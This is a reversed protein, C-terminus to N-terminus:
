VPRTDVGSGVVRFVLSGSFTKAMGSPLTYNISFSDNEMRLGNPKDITESLM